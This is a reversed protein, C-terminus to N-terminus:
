EEQHDLMGLLIGPLLLDKVGGLLKESLEMGRHFYLLTSDPYETSGYGSRVKIDYVCALMAALRAAM